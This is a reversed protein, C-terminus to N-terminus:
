AWAREAFEDLERIEDKPLKRLVAVDNADLCQILSAAWKKRRLWASRQSEADTALKRADARTFNRLPKLMGDAGLHVIRDLALLAHPNRGCLAHMPSRVDSLERPVDTTGRMRHLEDNADAVLGTRAFRLLLEQPLDAVSEPTVVESPPRSTNISRTVVDAVVDRGEDQQRARKTEITM